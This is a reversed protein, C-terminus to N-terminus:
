ARNTAGSGHSIERLAAEDLLTVSRHGRYLWHHDELRDFADQLRESRVYLISSLEGLTIPLDVTKGEKTEHGDNSAKEVLYAAVKRAAGTLQFPEPDAHAHDELYKVVHGIFMARRKMFRHFEVASLFRAQTEELVEATVGHPSQTLTAGLGLVDGRRAIKVVQPRADALRVLKVRGSDILFVGLPANGEAFLASGAEYTRAQLSRAFDAKAKESLGTDFLDAASIRCDPCSSIQEFGHSIKM